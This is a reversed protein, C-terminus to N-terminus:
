SFPNTLIFFLRLGAKFTGQTSLVLKTVLCSGIPGEWFLGWGRGYGGGAEQRYFFWSHGLDEGLGIHIFTM